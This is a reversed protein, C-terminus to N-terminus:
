STEHLSGFAMVPSCWWTIDAGAYRPRLLALLDEAHAQDLVLDVVSREARGRVRERAGLEADRRGHGQAHFLTLGAAWEPHGSLVDVLEDEIARPLVLTLRVLTKM